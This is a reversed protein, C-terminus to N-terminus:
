ALIYATGEYLSVLLGFEGNMAKKVDLLFFRTKCLQM